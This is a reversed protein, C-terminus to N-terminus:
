YAGAIATQIAPINAGLDLGDTGANKYPSSPQLQYDGGDGNNYNVFDVTTMDAPFFNGSPWVSAPFASPSSVVANKNFVYSSFCAKFTTLPIDSYACNAAGGTGTSWVPYRGALVINNTFTFGSMKPETTADGTSLLHSGPDPFGTIHNILVNNLVNTQWNNAVQFLGGSGVFKLSEVDDITIDHISYRAGLYAPQGTVGDGSLGTSIQMGAGVHSITNFRITVDTVACIPCIGVGNENQNKPTLLISSGDQSYGGWTDELINGEFLVRQANKLELHNKVIFPNNGAGGVFGPQGQLWTLPKFLHNGSIQIDAPTTTAAGGGFLINEGSAEIFNDVIKYPGGAFSSTGGSVAHADTCAGVISTCHFDSLYSDVIAVNTMGSLALGTNTEDQATGHLWVRDVVLHDATTGAKLSILASISGTGVSRTIELGMLRYYNAGSALFFPGSGAVSSYLIQPVVKATSACNLAPRGPLSAVGAYCPTLRVGEAPLSSDSANSRIIIWHQDDCSKAPLTFTGAFIAGAALEITDGCSASNLASQFDGGANVTITSGPAPTDAMASQLYVRPLEAPGDFNSGSQSATVTLSFAQSVKTSSSDSAQATFSFTGAQLTSGSILGTTSSLLLGSPLSGSSISWQYPPQGGSAALASSYPTGAISNPLDLTTIRMNNKVTAPVVTISATGIAPSNDTGELTRNSILNDLSAATVTITQATSVTPANFLGQASITGASVRWTVASNPSNHVTATFQLSAGPQVVASNPTVNIFVGNGNNGSSQAPTGTNSGQLASQCATMGLALLTLLMLPVAHVAVASQLRFRSSAYGQIFRM